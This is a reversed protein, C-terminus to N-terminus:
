GEQGTLGALFGEYAARRTERRYGAAYARAIPIAGANEAGLEAALERRDRGRVATGLATATARVGAIESM